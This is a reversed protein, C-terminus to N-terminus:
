SYVVFTQLEPGKDVQIGGEVWMKNVVFPEWFWALVQEYGGHQDRLYSWLFDLVGSLLFTTDKYSEGVSNMYFM